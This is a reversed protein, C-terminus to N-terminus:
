AVVDASAQSPQSVVSLHGAGMAPLANVVTGIQVACAMGSLYLSSALVNLAADHRDDLQMSLPLGTLALSGCGITSRADTALSVPLGSLLVSAVGARLRQSIGAPTDTVVGRVQLRYAIAVDAPNVPVINVITLASAGVMLKDTLQPAVAPGIIAMRDGSQVENTM